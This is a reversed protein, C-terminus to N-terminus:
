MWRGSGGFVVMAGITALLLVFVAVPVGALWLLWTPITFAITM